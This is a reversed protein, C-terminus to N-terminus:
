LEGRPPPLDDITIPEIEEELWDDWSEEEPNMIGCDLYWDWDSMATWYRAM